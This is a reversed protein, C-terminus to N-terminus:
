EPKPGVSRRKLKDDTPPATGKRPPQPKSKNNNNHNAVRRDENRSTPPPHRQERGPLSHNARQGKGKQKAKSSGYIDAIEQSTLPPLGPNNIPDLQASAPVSPSRPQPQKAANTRGKPGSRTDDKKPLKSAPNNTLELQASTPVSTSRPQPQNTADTRGM